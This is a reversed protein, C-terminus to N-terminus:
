IYIKSNDETFKTEPFEWNDFLFFSQRTRPKTLEHCNACIPITISSNEQGIVHHGTPLLFLPNLEGCIVCVSAYKWKRWVYKAYSRQCTFCRTKKKGKSKFYIKRGCFECTGEWFFVKLELLEIIKKYHTTISTNSVEYDRSIEARTKYIKTKLKLLGEVYRCSAMLVKPSKGLCYQHHKRKLEEYLENM